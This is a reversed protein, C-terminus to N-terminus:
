TAAASQHAWLFVALALVGAAHEVDIVPRYPKGRVFRIPKDNWAVSLLEPGDKTWECNVTIVEPCPCVQM